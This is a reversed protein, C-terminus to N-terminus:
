RLARAKLFRKLDIPTAADDDQQDRSCLAIANRGMGKAKYVARDALMFLSEADETRADRVAGIGISVTVKGRDYKQHPINLAEISRQIRKAVRLAGDAPTDPLLIVFEEGGVRSVLDFPRTAEAEMAKAVRRLCVDGAAHGYTDNFLKFFDVDIMLLAIPTRARRAGELMTAAHEEHLRRNGLQTLPDITAMDSLKRYVGVVETLLMFLVVSATVISEFKGTYWALSYRHTSIANLIGDFATSVMAIVIWLDLARLRRRRVIVLVSACLNLACITPAMIERFIPLFHGARVAQPLHNRFVIAAVAFLAAFAIPVLVTFLTYKAILKKNVLRHRISDNYITSVSVIIPFCCRWAFWCWISVQEFGADRSPGLIIHPFLILYPITLAGSLTYAGSLVAYLLRGNVYFQSVLFFATMFDAIAWMTAAIPLFANVARIHVSPANAALATILGLGLVVLFASVANSQSAVSNGLGINASQAPAAPRNM